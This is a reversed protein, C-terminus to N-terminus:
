VLDLRMVTRVGAPRVPQFGRRLYSEPRGMFSYSEEARGGAEAHAALETKPYAEVAVAHLSRAHAIAGDLLAGAVGSRRHAPDIYFCVVAHVRDDAAEASLGLARSRLLKPYGTRPGASVWGVPLDDRYALLGPQEDGLVQQCLLERRDSRSARMERWGACWCHGAIPLGGRPGPREFLDQLDGLRDPTVVRVDVM